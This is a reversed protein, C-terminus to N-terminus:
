DNKEGCKPCIKLKENFLNDCKKCKLLTIACNECFVPAVCKFLLEGECFPCKCKKEKM